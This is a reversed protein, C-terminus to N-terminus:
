VEDPCVLLLLRGVGGGCVGCFLIVCALLTGAGDGAIGADHGSFRVVVVSGSIWVVGASRIVADLVAVALDILPDDWGVNGAVLRM